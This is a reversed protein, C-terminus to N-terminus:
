AYGYRYKSANFNNLVESYSLVKNYIRHQAINGYFSFSNAGVYNGLEYGYMNTALGVVGTSSGSTPTSNVYIKVNSNKEFTGVVHFWANTQSFPVSASATRYNNNVNDRVRFDFTPNSGNVAAVQRLDWANSLGRKVIFQISDGDTSLFQTFKVWVEVSIKDTNGELDGPNEESITIVDNFGDFSFSKSLGSAIFSPGTVTGTHNYPALNTFTSGIGSYCQPNGFDYWVRLSSDNVIKDKINQLSALGFSKSSGLGFGVPSM